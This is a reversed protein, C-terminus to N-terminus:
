SPCCTTDTSAAGVTRHRKPSDPPAGDGGLAIAIQSAKQLVSVKNRSRSWTECLKVAAAKCADVDQNTVNLNVMRMHVAARNM